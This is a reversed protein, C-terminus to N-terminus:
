QVPRMLVTDAASLAAIIHHHHAIYLLMLVADNGVANEVHSDVHLTRCLIM